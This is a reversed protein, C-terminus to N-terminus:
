AHTENLPTIMKHGGTRRLIPTSRARRLEHTWVRDQKSERQPSLPRARIAHKTHYFGCSFSGLEAHSPEKGRCKQLHRIGQEQPRKTCSRPETQADYLANHRCQTKPNSEPVGLLAIVSEEVCAQVAVPGAQQSQRHSVHKSRFNHFFSKSFSFNSAILKFTALAVHQLTVYALPLDELAVNASAVM